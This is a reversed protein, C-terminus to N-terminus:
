LVWLLTTNITVAIIITKGAIYKKKKSNVSKGIPSRIKADKNWDTVGLVAPKLVIFRVKILSVPKYRIIMRINIPPEGPEVAPPIFVVVIATKNEDVMEM